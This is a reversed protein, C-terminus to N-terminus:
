AGERARLGRNPVGRDLRMNRHGRSTESSLLRACRSAGSRGGKALASEGCPPDGSCARGRELSAGLMDAMHPMTWALGGM